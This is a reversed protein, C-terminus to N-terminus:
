GNGMVWGRRSSSSHWGDGDVTCFQVIFNIPFIAGATRGDHQNVARRDGARAIPLVDRRQQGALIADDHRIAPSVSAAGVRLAAVAETLQGIVDGRQDAGQAILASVDDSVAVAAVHGEDGQQLMWLHHLRGYQLGGVGVDAGIQHFFLRRFEVGVADRAFVGRPPILHDGQVARRVAGVVPALQQAEGDRFDDALRVEGRLVQRPHRAGDEDNLALVVPHVGFGIV